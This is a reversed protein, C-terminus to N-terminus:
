LVIKFMIGDSTREAKITGGHAEATAKAISLGIGTGGTSKSRSSDPRYFREFLRSLDPIEETSCTNGIEIVSKKGNGYANLFIRGNEATYKLANDLLISIM